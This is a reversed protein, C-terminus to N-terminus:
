DCIIDKFFSSALIHGNKHAVYVMRNSSNIEEWHVSSINNIGVIRTRCLLKSNIISDKLKEMRTGVLMHKADTSPKHKVREWDKFTDVFTKREEEEKPPTFKMLTQHKHLYQPDAIVLYINIPQYSIRGHKDMGCSVCYDYWSFREYYATGANHATLHSHIHAEHRYNKGGSGYNIRVEGLTNSNPDPQKGEQTETLYYKDENKDKYIEIGYEVSGNKRSLHSLINAAVMAAEYQSDYTPMKIIKLFKDESQPHPHPKHHGCLTGNGSADLGCITSNSSKYNGCVINGVAVCIEHESCRITAFTDSDM